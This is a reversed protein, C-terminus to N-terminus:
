YTEEARDECFIIFWTCDVVTVVEEIEIFEACPANRRRLSQQLESEQIEAFVVFERCVSAVFKYQVDALGDRIFNPIDVDGVWFLDPCEDSSVM